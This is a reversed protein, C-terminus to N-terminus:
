PRHGINRWDSCDEGSSLLIKTAFYSAVFAFYQIIKLIIFLSVDQFKKVTILVELIVFLM